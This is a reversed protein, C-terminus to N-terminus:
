KIRNVEDCLNDLREFFDAKRRKLGDVDIGSKAMNNQPVFAAASHFIDDFASAGADNAKSCYDMEGLYDVTADDMRYLMDELDKPHTCLYKRVADLAEKDNDLKGEAYLALTEDDIIKM